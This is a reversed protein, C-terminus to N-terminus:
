EKRSSPNNAALRGHHSPIDILEGTGNAALLHKVRSTASFPLEELTRSLPLTDVAAAFKNLQRASLRNYRSPAFNHSPSRYTHAKWTIHSTRGDSKLDGSRFQRRAKM